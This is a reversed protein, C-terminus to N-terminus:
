KPGEEAEGKTLSLAPHPNADGITLTRFGRVKIREGKRFM